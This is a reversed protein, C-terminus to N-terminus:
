TPVELGPEECLGVRGPQQALREGFGAVPRARDRETRIGVAVLRDLAFVLDGSLDELDQSFALMRDGDDGLGRQDLSIQIQEAEHRLLVQHLYENGDPGEVSAERALELRAGGGRLGATM